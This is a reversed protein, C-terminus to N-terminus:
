FLVSGRKHSKGRFQFLLGAEWAPLTPEIGALTMSSLVPNEPKQHCLGWIFYVPLSVSYPKMTLRSLIRGEWPQSSPEFGESTMGGARLPYYYSYSANGRITTVQTIFLYSNVGWRRVPRPYWGKVSSIRTRTGNPHNSICVAVRIRLIKIQWSFPRPEFGLATLFLRITYHYCFFLPIESISNRIFLAPYLLGTMEGAEYAPFRPNLDWGGSSPNQGGM